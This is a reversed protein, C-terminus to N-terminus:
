KIDLLKEKPLIKEQSFFYKDLLEIWCKHFNDVQKMFNTTTFNVLVPDVEM